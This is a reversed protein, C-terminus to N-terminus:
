IKPLEMIKDKMVKGGPNTPLESLFSLREDIDPHRFAYVAVAIKKKSM